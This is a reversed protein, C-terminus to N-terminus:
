RSGCKPRRFFSTDADRQCDRAKCFFLKADGLLIVLQHDSAYLRFLIAFREKVAANRRSL